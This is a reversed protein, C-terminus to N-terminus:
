RDALKLRRNKIIAEQIAEYWHRSNTDRHALYSNFGTNFYVTRNKGNDQYRVAFPVPGGVGFAPDISGKLHESFGLYTDTITDLRIALQYEKGEEIDWGHFILNNDGLSLEGEYRHLPCRAKVHAKILGPVKSWEDLIEGIDDEAIMLASSIRRIM